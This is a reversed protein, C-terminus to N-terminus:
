EGIVKLNKPSRILPSGDGGFELAGIDWGIGLPRINGLIDIHYKKEGTCSDLLCINYGKDIVKANEALRFDNPTHGISNVFPDSNESIVDCDVPYRKLINEYSSPSMNCRPQSIASFWNYDHTGILFGITSASYMLNNYFLLNVVQGDGGVPGGGFHHFTNNFIRWNNCAGTNCNIPFGREFINGYIRISDTSPTSNKVFGGSSPCESIYNWRFHMDNMGHMVLAECHQNVDFDSMGCIDGTYNYQIINGSGFRLFFPLGTINDIYLKEFICNNITGPAYIANCRSPNVINGVQYFSISKLIIFDVNGLSIYDINTGVNSVFHIGHNSQWNNPGGGRNGDIQWYSTQISLSVSSFVAPAAGYESVWGTTPGHDEETAKIINIFTNGSTPTNLIKSTTYTGSKLYYNNGRVFNVKDWSMVNNWDSGSGNGSESPGVCIDAAYTWGLSSIIIYLFTAIFFKVKM